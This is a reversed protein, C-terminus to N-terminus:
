YHLAPENMGMYSTEPIFSKNLIQPETKDGEGGEETQIFHDNDM